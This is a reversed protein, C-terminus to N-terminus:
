SNCHALWFHLNDPTNLLDKLSIPHSFRISMFHRGVSIEPYAAFARPVAVRILKLNLQPDLLEQYFGHEAKKEQFQIGERLLRLVLGIATRIQSFENLWIKLTALREEAPQQLWYYFLPIDFSCGGGPSALHLRLNNLLEIERLNQGIKRNSEIFCRSM